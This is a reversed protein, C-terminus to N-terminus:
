GTTVKLEYPICSYTMLTKTPIGSDTGASSVLLLEELERAPEGPTRM